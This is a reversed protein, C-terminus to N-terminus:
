LKRKIKRKPSVEKEPEKEPKIEEVEETITKETSEKKKKKKLSSKEKSPTGQREVYKSKYHRYALGVGVLIGLIIGIAFATWPLVGSLFDPIIRISQPALNYDSILSTTAGNSDTAFIYVYWVGTILDITRITIQLDIGTYVKSVNYWENNEDILAVKIYSVGEVDSVNFTFTLDNGYLVSILEDMSKGNINYSHIEPFNNKVTLSTTYSSTGGNQDEANIIIRYKGIPRGATTSFQKTFNNSALYDIIITEVFNGEPDEITMSVDLNKAHDEIDTVNLTIEIQETRFVESPTFRISGTEIVPDSNLINFPFYAAAIQGSTKNTINLKIYFTQGVYDHFTENTIQYTFQVLDDGLNFINQQSSEITSDVITINWGFQSSENDFVALEAYLDDGIYYESSNTTLMYNTITTFNTFTTHNNQLTDSSDFLLFSVNQFGLPANYLPKYEYYYDDSGGGVSIMNFNNTSGNSFSIQMLAETVNFSFTNITINISEFLRYVTTTNRSIAWYPLPKQPGNALKPNNPTEIENEGKTSLVPHYNFHVLLIGFFSTTLIFFILIISNYKRDRL